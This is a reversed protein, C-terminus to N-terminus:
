TNSSHVVDTMHWPPRMSSVINLDAFAKNVELVDEVHQFTVHIHFESERKM